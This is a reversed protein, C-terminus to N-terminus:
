GCNEFASEGIESLDAPLSVERLGGCRAFAEDGITRLGEPLAISVLNTCGSFAGVGIREISRPLIIETLNLAYCFAYDGIETVKYTNGNLMVTEPVEVAGSYASGNSVVRVTKQEESVVEYNLNQMFGKWQEIFCACFGFM